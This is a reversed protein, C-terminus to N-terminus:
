DHLWAALWASLGLAGLLGLFSLFESEKWAQFM